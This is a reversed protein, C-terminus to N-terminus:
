HDVDKRLEAIAAKLAMVEETSGQNHECVAIRAELADITTSLPTMADILAIRIMSPVSAQLSAVRRDDSLALQGMQLLSARTLSLRSIVVVTTPRPSQAAAFSGPTDAPTVTAISTGSPGHAPAPLSAKAPSSETNVLEMAAAKKREAQDKLYEDEINWIDTSATPM